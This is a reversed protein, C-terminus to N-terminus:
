NYKYKWIFGGYSEKIGKCCRSIQNKLFNTEREIERMSKWETIFNNELDFQLIPSRKIKTGLISERIKRKQDETRPKKNGVNKPNNIKALRLKENHEETMKKGFAWHNEPNLFYDKLTNSIKDKVIPDNSKNPNNLKLRESYYLKLEVAKEEGVIEELTKGKRANSMKQKTIKSFETVDTSHSNTLKLGDQSMKDIWYKERENSKELSECTELVEIIPKFGNLLITRLWRSKHTFYECDYERLCRSLHSNYRRKLDNTQGVYRIENNKPDKLVYIYRM